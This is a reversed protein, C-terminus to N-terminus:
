GISIAYFLHDSSDKSWNLRAQDLLNITGLINTKVFVLPNEISNDVHSEAALHIVYNIQYKSFISQTFTRDSIDGKIFKYNSYSELDKIATYDSAYTLNDVNIIFYKEYNIVFKHLLHSGIFGAGGTILIYKDFKM